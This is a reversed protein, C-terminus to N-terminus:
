SSEQDPIRLEAYHNPDGQWRKAILFTSIYQSMNYFHISIQPHRQLQARSVVWLVSYDYSFGPDISPVTITEHGRYTGVYHGDIGTIGFMDIDKKTRPGCDDAKGTVIGPLPLDISEKATNQITAALVLYRCPGPQGPQDFNWSNTSLNPMDAFKDVFSVSHPTIRVAGATYTQGFSIHTVHQASKLGGFAATIAVIVALVTWRLQKLTLQQWVTKKEAEVDPEIDSL